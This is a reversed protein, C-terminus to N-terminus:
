GLCRCSCYENQQLLAQTLLVWQIYLLGFWGYHCKEDNLLQILAETIDEAKFYAFQIPVLIIIILGVFSKKIFHKRRRLLKRTLNIFTRSIASYFFFIMYLRCTNSEGNTFIFKPCMVFKGIMVTLHLSCRVFALVSHSWLGSKKRIPTQTTFLL